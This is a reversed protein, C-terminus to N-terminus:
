HVSLYQLGSQIVEDHRLLALACVYGKRVAAIWDAMLDPPLDFDIQFM